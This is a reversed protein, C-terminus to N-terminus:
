RPRQSSHAQTSVFPSVGLSEPVAAKIPFEAVMVRALAARSLGAQRLAAVTLPEGAREVADAAQMGERVFPAVWGSLPCTEGTYYHRPGRPSGCDCRIYLVRM